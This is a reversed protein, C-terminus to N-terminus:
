IFVLVLDWIADVLGLFGNKSEFKMGLAVSLGVEHSSADEFHERWCCIDEAGVDGSERRGGIRRKSREEVFKALVFDEEEAGGGV